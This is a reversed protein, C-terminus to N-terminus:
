AKSDEDYDNNNDVVILLIENADDILVLANNIKGSENEDAVVITGEDSFEEDEVTDCFVYQTDETFYFRDTSHLTVDFDIFDGEKVATIAGISSWTASLTDENEIENDALLDYVIVEGVVFDSLTGNVKYLTEMKGFEANWVTIVVADDGDFEGDYAETIYGYNDTTGRDNPLDTTLNLSIVEAVDVGNTENTLVSGESGAPLAAKLNNLTAGSIVDYDGDENLFVVADDAISYTELTTTGDKLVKLVGERDSTAATVTVTEAVTTSYSDDYSDYGADNTNSVIELNYEGNRETYTVMMDQLEELQVKTFDDKDEVTNTTIEDVTVIKKTGDAFVLKARADDLTNTEDYDVGEVFAINKLSNSTSTEEAFYVIDDVVYFTYSDGSEISDSTNKTYWTGDIKVEDTKLGNVKGDISDMEVLKDNDGAVNDASFFVVYDDKDVGSYIDDDDFKLSETSGNTLKVTTKNVYSVQGVEYPLYVIVDVEDNDDTDILRATGALADFANDANAATTTDTNQAIAKLTSEIDYVVDNFEIEKESVDLDDIDSMTGTALVVSDPAFIGYVDEDEDVVVTVVMAFLDTYDNDSKYTDGGITYTYEDDDEDYSFHTMVGDEISDSKFKSKLLTNDVNEKDERVQVTVLNGDVTSLKYDYEVQTANLANWVMQAADDRNLPANPDINVDDYLDKQSAAVNIKVSWAPSNFGEFDANFGISVLLMKAAQTGTVKGDPVFTGDGMGAVIGLSSCYEIYGEAWHGQIDTYTPTTKPGLTPENGGNLVICIMKAMEARTVTGEPDFSGDPRGNIINLAVNMDVATDNEIDTQDTFTATTGVVFLSMVMAAAMAMTLLRKLNNM